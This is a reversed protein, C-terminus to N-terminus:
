AGNNIQFVTIAATHRIVEQYHGIQEQLVAIWERAADLDSDRGQTLEVKKKLKSHLMKEVRLQRQLDTVQTPIPPNKKAAAAKAKGEKIPTVKADENGEKM